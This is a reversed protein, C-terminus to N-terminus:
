ETGSCNLPVDRSQGLYVFFTRKPRLFWGRVDDTRAAIAWDLAFHIGLRELLHGPM